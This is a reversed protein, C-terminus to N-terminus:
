NLCGGDMLQILCSSNPLNYLDNHQVEPTDASYLPTPFM